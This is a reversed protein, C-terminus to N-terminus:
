ILDSSNIKFYEAISKLEDITMSKEDRFLQWFRKKNINIQEYFSKPPQFKFIDTEKSLILEKLKGM